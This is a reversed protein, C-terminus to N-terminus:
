SQKETGSLPRKFVLRYVSDPDNVVGVLEWGAEGLEKLLRDRQDLLEPSFPTSRWNKSDAVVYEWRTM